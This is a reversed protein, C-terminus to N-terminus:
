SDPQGNNLAWEFMGEVRPMLSLGADTLRYVVTMPVTPLETRSVLGFEELEGLRRSLTTASTDVEGKLETFRIGEGHMNLVHMVKLMKSRGLLGLLEDMAVGGEEFVSTFTDEEKTSVAVTGLLIGLLVIFSLLGGIVIYRDESSSTETETQTEDSGGTNTFGGDESKDVTPSASESDQQTANEGAEVIPEESMEESNEEEVFPTYEDTGDPCDFKGDDVLDVTILTGDMCEWEDPAQEQEEVNNEEQQSDTEDDADTQTENVQDENVPNEDDVDTSSSDDEDANGGFEFLVDPQRYQAPILLTDVVQIMGNDEAVPWGQPLQDNYPYGDVGNYEYGYVRNDADIVTTFSNVFIDQCDNEVLVTQNWTSYDNPDDYGGNAMPMWDLSYPCSLALGYPGGFSVHYLLIDQLSAIDEETDFFDIDFGAAEFADNTPAFMTWGMQPTNSPSLDDVLGAIELAEMLISFDGFNEFNELVSLNEDFQYLSDDVSEEEESENDGEDHSDEDLVYWLDDRTEYKTYTLCEETDVTANRWELEDNADLVAYRASGMCVEPSNSQYFISTLTGNSGAPIHYIGQTGYYYGTARCGAYMVSVFLDHEESLGGSGNINCYVAGMEWSMLVDYSYVDVSTDMTFSLTDNTVNGFGITVEPTMGSSNNT